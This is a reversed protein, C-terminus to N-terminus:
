EDIDEKFWSDEEVTEEEIIIEEEIEEIIPDIKTEKILSKSPTKRRLNTIDM